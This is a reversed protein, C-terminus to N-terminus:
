RTELEKDCRKGRFLRVKDRIGQRMTEREEEMKRHKEKRREEAERRAEAVEPDEGEETKEGADDDKDGIAGPTFTFCYVANKSQVRNYVIYSVYILGGLPFGIIYDGSINM